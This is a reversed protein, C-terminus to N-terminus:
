VSKHSKGHVLCLLQKSRASSCAMLCDLHNSEAIQLEYRSWLVFSQARDHVTWYLEQPLRNEEKM